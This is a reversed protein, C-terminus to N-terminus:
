PTKTELSFDDVWLPKDYAQDAGGGRDSQAIVEVWAVPFGAVLPGVTLQTWNPLPNYQDVYVNATQGGAGGIMLGLRFWKNAADGASPMKVWAKLTLSSGSPLTGSARQFIYSGCFRLYLKRSQSGSHAESNDADSKSGCNSNIDTWGVIGDEFGPNVLVPAGTAPILAAGATPSPTDIATETPSVTGYKAALATGEAYIQTARANLDAAKTQLGSVYSRTEEYATITLEIPSSAPPPSFDIFCAITAFALVLFASLLRRANAHM